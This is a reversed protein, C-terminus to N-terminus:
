LETVLTNYYKCIEEKLMCSVNMRTRVVFKSLCLVSLFFDEVADICFIYM